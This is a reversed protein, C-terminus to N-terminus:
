KNSKVLKKHNSMILFNKARPGRGGEMECLPGNLISTVWKKLNKVGEEEGKDGM